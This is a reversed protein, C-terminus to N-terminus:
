QTLDACQNCGVRRKHGIFLQGCHICHNQYRGNEHAFDETWDRPSYKRAHLMRLEAKSEEPLDTIDLGGVVERAPMVCPSGKREELLDRYHEIQSKSPDSMTRMFADTWCKPCAGHADHRATGAQPEPSANM